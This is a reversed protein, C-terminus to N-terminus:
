LCLVEICWISTRGHSGNENLYLVGNQLHKLRMGCSTQQHCCNSYEEELALSGVEVQLAKSWTWVLPLKLLKTGSSIFHFHHQTIRFTVNGHKAFPVVGLRNLPFGNIIIVSELNTLCSYIHCPSLINCLRSSIIDFHFTAVSHSAYLWSLAELTLFQKHAEHFYQVQKLQDKILTTLHLSNNLCIRKVGYKNSNKCSITLAKCSPQYTNFTWCLCRRVALLLQFGNNELKGM